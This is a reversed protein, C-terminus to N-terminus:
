QILLILLNRMVCYSSFTTNLGSDVQKMLKCSVSKGQSTDEMEPQLYDPIDLPVLQRGSGHEPRGPGQEDCGSAAADQAEGERKDGGAETCAASSNPPEQIEADLTASQPATVGEQGESDSSSASLVEAKGEPAAPQSM